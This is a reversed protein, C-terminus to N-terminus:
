SFPQLGSGDDGRSAKLRVWCTFLSFVIFYFGLTLIVPLLEGNRLGLVQIGILLQFVGYCLSVKWHAIKFENALLQYLHKRHPLNLKEGSKIRVAMTTLEDAYFPFILASLIVFDEMSHSFAVVIGSFIFGLLISGVDGMFVKAKPVNFPLFGLCSCMTTVCITVYVPEAGSVQAFYALLGFGVVATIGAIGNIGDMFNYFNTTGVMFISLPLVLFYSGFSVERSDYLYLLFVLSCAFQIFLRIKPSIDHRDGWFSIVSLFAAPIWFSKPILLFFASFVFATLIGIGGGKPIVM